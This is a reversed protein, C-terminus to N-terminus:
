RSALLQVCRVYDVVLGANSQGHAAGNLYALTVALTESSPIQTTAAGIYAGNHWCKVNAGGDYYFEDTYWTDVAITALMTQSTASGADETELTLTTAADVTKFYIGATMAGIVDTDTVCLGMIVDCSGAGTGHIKWRVGFFIPDEDTPKFGETQSQAQIGDNENGAANLYILGGEGDYNTIVSTGSGAEVATEDWDEGYASFDNIYKIVNPGIADVWRHRYGDEWFVLNGLEYRSHMRAYAM